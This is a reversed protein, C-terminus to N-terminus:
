ERLIVFRMRSHSRRVGHRASSRGVASGFISDSHRAILSSFRPRTRRSFSARIARTRSAAGATGSISSCSGIRVRTSCGELGQVAGRVPVVTCCSCLSAGPTAARKGTCRSAAVLKSCGRSTRSSRRFSSWSEDHCVVGCGSIWCRLAGSRESIYGSCWCLDTTM